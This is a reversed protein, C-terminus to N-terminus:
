ALGGSVSNEVQNSADKGQVRGGNVPNSSNGNSPNNIKNGSNSFKATVIRIESLTLHVSLMSVNRSASRTYSYREISKNIYQVEPTVVSYLNTSKCATDIATLFQMKDNVSGTITLTVRSIGPLEVKNYSAFSGSQVPFNSSQMIKTYAIDQTSQIPGFFNLGLGTLPEGDANFIGWQASFGNIIDQGVNNFPGLFHPFNIISM